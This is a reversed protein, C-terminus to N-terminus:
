DPKKYKKAELISLPKNKPTFNQISKIIEGKKNVWFLNEFDWDILNTLSVEKYLNLTIMKGFVDLTEEKIFSFKTKIPLQYLKPNEFNYYSTYIHDVDDFNKSIAPHDKDLELRSLDNGIGSVKIVYGNKTYIKVLNSSTWKLIDNVEEELVLLSNKSNGIKVQLSAYPVSNVKEISINNDEFFLSSLNSLLEGYITGNVCSTLVLTSIISLFKNTIKNNIFGM